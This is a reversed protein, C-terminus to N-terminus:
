LPNPQYLKGRTKHESLAETGLIRNTHRGIKNRFSDVRFPEDLERTFRGILFAEVPTSDLGSETDRDFLDTEFQWRPLGGAPQHRAPNCCRHDFAHNRRVFTSQPQSIQPAFASLCALQGLHGL